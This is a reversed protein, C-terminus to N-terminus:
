YGEAQMTAIALYATELDRELQRLVPESPHLRLGENAVWRLRTLLTIKKRKLLRPRKSGICAKDGWSVSHTLM